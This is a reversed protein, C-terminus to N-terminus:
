LLYLLNKIDVNKENQVLNLHTKQLRHCYKKVFDKLNSKIDLKEIIEDATYKQKILSIIKFCDEGLVLVPDSGSTYIPKYNGTNTSFPRKEVELKNIKELFKFLEEKDILLVKMNRKSSRDYDIKSNILKLEIWGRVTHGSVKAIKAANKVAVWETDKEVLEKLPFNRIVIQRTPIDLRM